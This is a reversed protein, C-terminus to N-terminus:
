DEGEHLTGGCPEPVRGARPSLARSVKSRTRLDPVWAVGQRSVVRQSEMSINTSFSRPSHRSMRVLVRNAAVWRGYPDQRKLQAELDLTQDDDEEPHSARRGARSATRPGRVRPARSEPVTHPRRAQWSGSKPAQGTPVSHPRIMQASFVAAVFVM